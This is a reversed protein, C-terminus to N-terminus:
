RERMLRDFQEWTLRIPIKANMPAWDITGRSIRLEGLKEDDSRIEFVVDASLVVKTTPISMEVDHKPLEAGQEDTRSAAVNRSRCGLQSSNAIRDHQFSGSAWGDFRVLALRSGSPVPLKATFTIHFIGRVSGIGHLKAGTFTLGTPLTGSEFITPTPKCTVLSHGSISFNGPAESM